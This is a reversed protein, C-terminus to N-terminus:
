SNIRKRDVGAHQAEALEGGLGAALRRVEEVGAQEM